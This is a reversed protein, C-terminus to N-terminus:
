FSFRAPSSSAARSRPSVKGIRSPEPSNIPTSKRSSILQGMLFFLNLIMACGLVAITSLPVDVAGWNPTIIRLGPEVLLPSTVTLAALTWVRAVATSWRRVNIKREVLILFPQVLFFAGCVLFIGWRGMAMFALLVHAVASAFFAVFLGLAIGRRAFPAFLLPRFVLASAAVNWRKIWFESVSTSLIPSRMLSPATIGTLNTLFDHGATLMEAFAFVMIGGAFWRALLWFGTASVM